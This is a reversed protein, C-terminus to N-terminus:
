KNYDSRPTEGRSVGTLMGTKRWLRLAVFKTSAAPVTLAM